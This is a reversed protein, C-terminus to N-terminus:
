IKLVIKGTSKRSEMLAHAQQLDQFDYVHGVLPKLQYKTVYASLDDWVRLMRPTDRLMYGLHSAGFLFSQEGMQTVKVRPIDRLTRYISFPNWKKLNNSAFGIVVIRGFPALLKVSKKFVDGGVVEIVVDVGRGNTLEKTRSNFDEQRYNIVGDIGLKRVVEKKADSGVTGYVTCGLAKALQVAATGVGGAAAQVLVSDGPRLRSMEFLGVWATMWQVAFAANEEPSLHKLPTLAQAAPVVIKDAYAGHQAAVIVREGVQRTTVGEGVADVTGYGEMGMIYPHKVAWQYLGKRSLVDAYNLGVYELKVRVEGKGPRPEPVESIKLVEPKGSKSLVVAQM